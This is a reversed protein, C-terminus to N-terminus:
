TNINKILDDVNEYNKVKGAKYAELAENIKERGAASLEERAEPFKNVMCPKLVIANDVMEAELIDGGEICLFERFRKPLTVNGHSDM